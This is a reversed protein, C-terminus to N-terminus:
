KRGEEIFSKVEAQTLKPKGVSKDAIRQRLARIGAVALKVQELNRRGEPIMRAVPKDHRTIVIEEGSAVRELLEGFRTKADFATVTAM